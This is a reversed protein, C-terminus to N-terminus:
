DKIQNFIKNKLQIKKFDIKFRPDNSVLLIEDSQATIRGIAANLKDIAAKTGSLQDTAEKFRYTESDLYGNIEKKMKTKYKKLFSKQFDNDVLTASQSNEQLVKMRSFDLFKLQRVNDLENKDMKNFFTKAKIKIKKSSGPLQITIFEGEARKQVTKELDM